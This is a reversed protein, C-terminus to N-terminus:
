QAGGAARAPLATALIERVVDSPSRNERECIFAIKRLDASPLRVSLPRECSAYPAIQPSRKLSLTSKM